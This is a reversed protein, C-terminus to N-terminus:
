KSKVDEMDSKRCAARLASVRSKSERVAQLERHLSIIKNRLDLELEEFADYVQLAFGDLNSSGCALAWMKILLKKGSDSNIIPEFVSQFADEIEESLEAPKDNM